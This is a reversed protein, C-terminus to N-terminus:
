LGVVKLCDTQCIWVNCTLLLGFIVCFHFTCYGFLQTARPREMNTRIDSKWSIIFNTLKIWIILLLINLLEQSEEHQWISKKVQNESILAAAQKKEEESVHTLILQIVFSIFSLLYVSTSAVSWSIWILKGTQIPNIMALISAMLALSYLILWLCKNRNVSEQMFSMLLVGLCVSSFLFHIKLITVSKKAKSGSM